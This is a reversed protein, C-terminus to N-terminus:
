RRRLLREFLSRKTERETILVSCDVEYLVDLVLSRRVLRSLVGAETAGILILTHDAAADEIAEEVDGTEILLHANQLDHEAAWKELFERGEQPDDAVHLLTVESGFEARLIRAVIAAMDTHPGGTTPLLVRSPDFGRDKFVLFDCPLSHALEHTVSEARGAVGPSDPGWGMLCVDADYREAADFIEEFLRHSFITHTEIPVGLESADGEADSLLKESTEHDFGDRAAELPTQDPVQVLTVAIVRGDRQNAIASALRILHGETEPNSLPVFVVFEDATESDADHLRTRPESETV